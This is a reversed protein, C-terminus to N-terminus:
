SPVAVNIVPDGTVALGARFVYVGEPTAATKDIFAPTIDVPAHDVFQGITVLDSTSNLLNQRRVMHGTYGARLFEFAKKDNHGSAAQPDVVGVIDTGTATSPLLVEPTTAACLLRPAAGKNFQITWGVNEETLFCTIYLGSASEIQAKTPAGSTLTPVLWFSDMQLANHIGPKVPAAM